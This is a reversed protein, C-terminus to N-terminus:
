ESIQDAMKRLLESLDNRHTLRHDLDNSKEQLEGLISAETEIIRNKLEQEIAQMRDSHDAQLNDLSKNNANEMSKMNASLQKNIAELQKKLANFQSNIDAEMKAFKKEINKTQEGFLIDRIQDVSDNNKDSM